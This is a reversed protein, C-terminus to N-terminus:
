PEFPSVPTSCTQSLWSARRRHMGGLPPEPPLNLWKPAARVPKASISTNLREVSSELDSIRSTHALQQVQINKFASIACPTVACKKDVTTGNCTFCCKCGPVALMYGTGTNWNYVGNLEVGTFSPGMASANDDMCSGADNSEPQGRPLPLPPGRLSRPRQEKERIEAITVFVDLGIIKAEDRTIPEERIGLEHYAPGEWSPLDFERAIGIRKVADLELAELRQVCYDQLAQYEYMTAVRLASVLTHATFAFPGTIISAYLVKFMECFDEALVDDRQISVEPPQKDLLPKLGQFRKILYRHTEFRTGNVSIHMDGDGPEFMPLGKCEPPASAKPEPNVAEVGPSVVDGDLESVSVNSLSLVSISTPSEM